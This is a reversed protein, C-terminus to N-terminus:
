ESDGKSTSTSSFSHHELCMHRGPLLWVRTKLHCEKLSKSKRAAELINVTGMINTDYTEIPFDYSNRVIPQAALHIIIEPECKLIFELFKNYDRVDGIISTMNNAIKAEEFLSPNTPPNLSYGYLNAGLM